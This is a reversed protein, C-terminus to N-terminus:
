KASGAKATAAEKRAKKRSAGSRSGGREGGARKDGAMAAAAAVEGHMWFSSPSVFWVVARSSTWGSKSV